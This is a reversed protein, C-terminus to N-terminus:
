AAYLTGVSKKASAGIKPILISFTVDKPSLIQEKSGALVESFSPSGTNSDATSAQVTESVTYEIGRYESVRFQVEYMIVPGFTAAVGYLSTLLLFNGLSRFALFKVKDRTTM